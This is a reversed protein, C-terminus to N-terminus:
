FVQIRNNGCDCVYLFGDQDITIGRPQSLEGGSGRRGFSTIFEGSTYFVSVRNNLWEVGYVHDHYVCIGISWPESLEAPGSAHRDFTRLFTGTQSFM